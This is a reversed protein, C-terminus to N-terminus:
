RRPPLTPIYNRSNYWSAASSFEELGGCLEVPGRNHEIQSWHAGVSSSRLEIHGQQAQSSFLLWVYFVFYGYWIMHVHFCIDKTQRYDPVLKSVSHFLKSTTRSYELLLKSMAQLYRPLLKTIIQCYSAEHIFYIICLNDFICQTMHCMTCLINNLHM